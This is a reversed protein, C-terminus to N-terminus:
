GHAIAYEAWHCLALLAQGRHRYQDNADKLIQGGYVTQQDEGARALLLPGLWVYKVASARLCLRVDALGAGSGRCYALTMREEVDAFHQAAIFGDFVADPIFNGIDEALAGSGFFSWDLVVVSGQDDIIVNNPWFDLHCAYRPATQLIRLLEGRHSSLYVLGEKLEVPWNDRILPRQWAADDELLDYNVRKSQAYEAIFGRSVWPATFDRLQKQARGWAEAIHDYDERRLAAGSRGAVDELDLESRWRSARADVLRPLRVGSGELREALDSLYVCAERRWYNWHHPQTSARWEAPTDATNLGNLIKRVLAVGDQDVREISATVANRPNHILDPM